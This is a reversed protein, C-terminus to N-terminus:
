VASQDVQLVMDLSRLLDRLKKEDSKDLVKPLRVVGFEFTDALVLVVAVFPGWWDLSFPEHDKAILWANSPIDVDPLEMSWGIRKSSAHLRFRIERDQQFHNKVEPPPTSGVIELAATVPMRKPERPRFNVQPLHLYSQDLLKALAEAVPRDIPNGVSVQGEISSRFTLAGAVALINPRITGSPIFEILLKSPSPFSDYHEAVCNIESTRLMDDFMYTFKM